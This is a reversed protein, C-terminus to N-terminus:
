EKRLLTRGIEEWDKVEEAGETEEFSFAAPLYKRASEIVAPSGVVAKIVLGMARSEDFVRGEDWSIVPWVDFGAEELWERLMKPGPMGTRLFVIPFTRGIDRLVKQSHSRPKRSFPNELLAGEVDVFFVERGKRLSLLIGHGEEKGSRATIRHIGERLPVFQRFAYGDGGSLASGISKGDALFEVTVGGRVFFRGRTEAKITTRKGRLAVLDHVIVGSFVDQPIMFLFLIFFIFAGTKSDGNKM